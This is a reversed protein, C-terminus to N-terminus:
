GDASQKEDVHHKLWDYWATMGEGTASSVEFIPLDARIDAIDTKVRDVEFPVVGALDIKNLLVCGAERFLRPYKAVKDDGEPVSLVAVKFDEGLDATSPCVLNGVNEIFLVDLGALDM